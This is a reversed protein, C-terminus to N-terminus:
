PRALWERYTTKAIVTGDKAILADRGGWSSQRM